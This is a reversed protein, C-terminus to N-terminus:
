GKSSIFAPMPPFPFHPAYEKTVQINRSLEELQAFLTRREEDLRRLVSEENRLCLEAIELGVQVEADRFTEVFARRELLLKVCPDGEEADLSASTLRVFQQLANEATASQPVDAPEQWPPDEVPLMTGLPLMTGPSVLATGASGADPKLMEIARQFWDRLGASYESLMALELMRKELTEKESVWRNKRSRGRAREVITQKGAAAVLAAAARPDVCLSIQEQFSNALTRLVTVAEERNSELAAKLTAPDLTLLKEKGMTIGLSAADRFAKNQSIVLSLISDIAKELSTNLGRATREGSRQLSAQALSARVLSNVQELLVAVKSTILAADYRVTLEARGGFIGTLDIRLRDPMGSIRGTADAGANGEPVAPPVTPGFSIIQKGALSEQKGVVEGAQRAPETGILGLTRQGVGSEGEAPLGPFPGQEIRSITGEGLKWGAILRQAPQAVLEVARIEQVKTDQGGTGPLPQLRPDPALMKELVQNLTDLEDLLIIRSGLQFGGSLGLASDTVTYPNQAVRTLLTTSLGEILTIGGENAPAPLPLEAYFEAVYSEYAEQLTLKNAAIYSTVARAVERVAIEFPLRAQQLDPVALIARAPGAASKGEALSGASSTNVRLRSVDGIETM